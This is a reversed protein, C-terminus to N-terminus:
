LCFANNMSIVDSLPDVPLNPAAAVWQLLGTPGSGAAASLVVACCRLGLAPSEMHHFLCGVVMATVISM